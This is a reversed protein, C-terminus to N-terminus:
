KVYLFHVLDKLMRRLEKRLSTDRVLLVFFNLMSNFPLGSVMVFAIDPQVTIVSNLLLCLTSPLTCAISIGFVLFLFKVIKKSSKWNDQTQSAESGSTRWILNEPRAIATRSNSITVTEASAERGQRNLYESLRCNTGGRDRNFRLSVAISRKQKRAQQFIKFYAFCTIAFALLYVSGMSITFVHHTNTAECFPTWQHSIYYLGPLSMTLIGLLWTGAVTTVIVRETVHRIYVFPHLIYLYRDVALVAMHVVSILMLTQAAIVAISFIDSPSYTNGDEPYARLYIISLVLSALGVLGDAVALSALFVYSSSSLTTASGRWIVAVLLINEVVICVDLPFCLYCLWNPLYKDCMVSTPDDAAATYTQNSGNINEMGFGNSFSTRRMDRSDFSHTGDFYKLDTELGVCRM